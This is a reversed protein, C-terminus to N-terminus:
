RWGAKVQAPWLRRLVHRDPRLGRSIVVSAVVSIAALILLVTLLHSRLESGGISLVALWLSAAAFATPTGYLDRVLQARLADNWALELDSAAPQRQAILRRGAIEAIVFSVLSLVVGGAIVASFGRVSADVAALVIAAGIVIGVFAHQAPALYDDLEVASARAVGASRQPELARLSVFCLATTTGITEAALFVLLSTDSPQGFLPQDGFLSALLIGGVAGGLAGIALARNRAAAQRLVFPTLEEPLPLSLRVTLAYLSREASADRFSRVVGVALLVVVLGAVWYFVFM